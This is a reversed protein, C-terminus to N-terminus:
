LNHRLYIGSANHQKGVRILAFFMKQLLRADGAVLDEMVHLPVHKHDTAPDTFAMDVIPHRSQKITQLQPYQKLDLKFEELVESAFEFHKETSFFQIIEATFQKYIRLM